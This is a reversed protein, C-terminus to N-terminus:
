AAEKRAIRTPRSAHAALPLTWRGEGAPAFGLRPFLDAVVGNKETPVFGARIASAGRARAAEALINLAEEELQRGFVRCSMVWNVLELADGSPELLMVSVIGNDGFKDVLRFQLALGDPDAAIAAVEAETRRITTTNFQNTKNILQTVRALNLANVPGFEVTMGLAGLFDEM